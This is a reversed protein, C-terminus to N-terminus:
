EDKVIRGSLGFPSKVTAPYIPITAIWTSAGGMEDFRVFRTALSGCKRRLRRAGKRMLGSAVPTVNLCGLFWCVFWFVFGHFGRCDEDCEREGDRRTEATGLSRFAPRGSWRGFAARRTRWGFATWALEVTRAAFAGVASWLFRSAGGLSATTTGVLAAHAWHRGQDRRKVCVLITFNGGFFDGIGGLCQLLEVLIAVSFQRHVFETWHRRL